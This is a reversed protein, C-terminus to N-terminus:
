PTRNVSSNVPLKELSNIALIKRRVLRTLFLTKLSFHSNHHPRASREPGKLISSNTPILVPESNSEKPM